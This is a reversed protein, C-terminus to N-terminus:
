EGLAAQCRALADRYAALDPSERSLREAGITVAEELDPLAAAHDGNDLRVGASVWLMHALHASGPPPLRRMMAVAEDLAERAEATRGLANRARALSCMAFAVEKHDGKFIRKIMELRRLLIPEGEGPRGLATRVSGQLGLAWSLGTSDGPSLQDFMEVAETALSEAGELDSQSARLLALNCLSEALETHDGQYLLKRTALAKLFLAEAEKTRGSNYLILGITNMMRAEIEPYDKLHGDGIYRLANDMASDVTLDPTGEENWADSSELLATVFDSIVETGRRSKTEATAAVDARTKETLAMVMSVIGLVLMVAVVAGATVAIKNRRVFKRVRYGASPPAALVPEYALHRQVDEALASASQYRRAPEKELAKICIWDLDGALQRVLLTDDVGHLPAIATATGTERRLRTSPTPPDTERITRQIESLPRDVNRGHEFPLLGSLLQYLVVGLSYVDSRTDVDLGGPDAQEPSMYDLTGVIQGVMTHLTHDALRGTTARAVGFDIVKPVARGDQQMVLLNSPKLDRHIVGKQHAHEVGDCIDLFLLLRERTSLKHRDCYATIPEGAVFEMVFYPRGDDTAGADLVAAVHPHTMRALAQREAHFRAVVEVSDMGPRILKLAVRREVPSRQEAAYVEGMGGLGVRELLKYPGIQSGARSSTETQLRTVVDEGALGKLLKGLEDALAVNSGCEREVFATQESRPLDIARDFLAELRSRDEPSLSGTM